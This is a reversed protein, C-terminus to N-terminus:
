EEMNVEGGGGRFFFSSSLTRQIGAGDGEEALERHGMRSLSERAMVKRVIPSRQISLAM